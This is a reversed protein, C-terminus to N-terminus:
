AYSAFAGNASRVVLVSADPIPSGPGSIRRAITDRARELTSSETIALVSGGFGGGIMRAGHIGPTERCIDAAADLAPSSVRALDRLSAHSANILHGLAPLDGHTLADIARRVRAQESICHDSMAREAPDLATDQPTLLGPNARALHEVGLKGAAARALAPRSGYEDQALQHRTGTEVVLMALHDPLPRHEFRDSACDFELAHDLRALASAAQDMLGCPVGAFRQEARQCRKAIDLPDLKIGFVACVAAATAVEIAASSSLGAGPPIDCSIALDLGHHNFLGHDANSMIEATVGFLYSAWTGKLAAAGPAALRELPAEAHDNMDVAYLRIRGPQDSLAAAAHAHLHIAIPLVTGGCYDIHEGILNVRGPAKAACSPEGGFASRFRDRLAKPPPTM